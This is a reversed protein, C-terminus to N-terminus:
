VKLWRDNELTWRVVQNIRDDISIKTGWGLEKM